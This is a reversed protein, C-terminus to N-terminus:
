FELEDSMQDQICRYFDFAKSKPIPKPYDMPDPESEEIDDDGDWDFTKWHKEIYYYQRALVAPSQASRLLFSFKGWWSVKFILPQLVTNLEKRDPEKLEYGRRVEGTIELARKRLRKWDNQSYSEYNEIAGEVVLQDEIFDCLNEICSFCRFMYNDYFGTESTDPLGIMLAFDPLIDSM